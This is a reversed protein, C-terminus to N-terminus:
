PRLRLIDYEQYETKSQVITFGPRDAFAAATTNAKDSDISGRHAHLLYRLTLPKKQTVELGEDFCFSAGMWGDARVHWKAPYHPNAPHDFYTIGEIATSRSPGTSTPVTGSYDMWAAQRGFIAPEHTAGTNSTLIGDGFHESISKAVRVALFGFNTKGLLVASADERPTFTTQLELSWEDQDGPIVAAVLLQELQIQGEPDVWLVRVALRAEEDGDLYALWTKQRLRFRPKDEWFNLGNVDHHAFWVSRHHKHNAAGPHGMRTLSSGSPGNFPFFFPRPYQNGYHWRTREVGDIRLSVEHNALPVIQCRPLPHTEGAFIGNAAIFLALFTPLLLKMVSM